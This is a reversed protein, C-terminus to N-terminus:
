SANSRQFTRKFSHNAWAKWSDIWKKHVSLVKKQEDILIKRPINSHDIWFGILCIWTCSICLTILSRCHVKVLYGGGPPSKNWSPQSRSVRLPPYNPFGSLTTPVSLFPPSMKPQASRGSPSTRPNQPSVQHLEVVVVTYMHMAAFIM